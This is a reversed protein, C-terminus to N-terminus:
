AHRPWLACAGLHAADAYRKTGEVAAADAEVSEDDDSGLAAHLDLRADAVESGFRDDVHMACGGLNEVHGPFGAVHNPAVRRLMKRIGAGGTAALSSVGHSTSRVG